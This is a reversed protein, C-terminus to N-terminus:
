KLLADIATTAEKESPMPANMDAIKFDKTILLSRPIGVIQYAQLKNRNVLWQYGDAKRSELSAKWGEVADDLSLSIFVVNPNDKYKLKLQEFHPMEQMCPGCWTAWLDVYIVKGKLSSLSVVKGQDDLAEFDVAIDGKGFAALSALMQLLANRYVPSAMEKIKAEFGKLGQKDSTRQMARVLSQATYWDKIQQVDASKGGDKVLDSAVDRYVVMKMLSADVFNKSLSSIKPQTLEKYRLSYVKAAEDKLRLTSVCYDEGAYYSNILDAKIRATELRKFEQSVSGISQLAETRAKALNEIAEVTAEPSPKVQSGAEIFSGGKPFPTAKLYTNAEAGRGKFVAINPDNYDISVTLDDGPSLYLINRGLRFYNPAALKFRISFASQGDPAILRETTPPLLYQLDSLDEIQVQNSFNKLTGKINVFGTKKQAFSALSLLLIISSLLGTKKMNYTM